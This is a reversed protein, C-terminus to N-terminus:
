LKRVNHHLVGAPVQVTAEALQAAILMVVVLVVVVVVAHAAAIHLVMVVM